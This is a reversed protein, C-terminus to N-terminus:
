CLRGGKYREQRLLAQRRPEDGTEASGAEKTGKRRWCLRGGQYREQRLLAQRSPVGGAGASSAEQSM